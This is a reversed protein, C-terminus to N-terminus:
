IGEFTITTGPEIGLADSRGARLELVRNVSKEPKYIILGQNETPVQANKAINVVKDNEIFIIDIPFNMDKMWFGYEGAEDFIFLMGQNEGLSERGSLGKVREADSEAVLLEITTEGIKATAESNRVLGGNGFDPLFPLDRGFGLVALLVFSVILAVYVLILKKM